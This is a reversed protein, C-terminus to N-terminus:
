WSHWRKAMPSGPLWDIDGNRLRVLNGDDDFKAYKQQFAINRSRLEEIAVGQMTHRIGARSFWSGTYNNLYNTLAHSIM